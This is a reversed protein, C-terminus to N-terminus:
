DKGANTASELLLKMANLVSSEKTFLQAQCFDLCLIKLCRGILLSSRMENVFVLLFFKTM